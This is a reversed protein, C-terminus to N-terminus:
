ERNEIIIRALDTRRAPGTRPVEELIQDLSALIDQKGSDVRRLEFTKGDRKKVRVAEGPSLAEEPAGHRLQRGSITKTAM